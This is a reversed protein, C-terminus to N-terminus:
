RVFGRDSSDFFSLLTSLEPSAPLEKAIVELAQTVNLGSRSLFKHARKLDRLSSVSFGRRRLGISNIGMLKLPEGAATMYPAVDKSVRCGGGVMTHIGIKCFQHVPTLGGIIAWDGITVHGGLQVGNAMIVRDGIVCDHAIHCYAMILVDSGITTKGSAATGRHLSAFERIVTSNGIELWTEEGAYKLDQPDGGVVASFYIRCDNGIRTNRQIVAHHGVWTGNGVTVNPGIAVYPEIIVGEGLVADPSVVASEHIEAPKATGPM